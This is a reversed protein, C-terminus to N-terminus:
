AVSEATIDSPPPRADEERARHYAAELQEAVVSLSFREGVRARGSQGMQRRLEPSRYLTLIAASLAAVDDVPVVLGEIGDRVIATNGPIDSVIVPLGSAMAELLANSMGESRSPLILFGAQHHAAWIHSTPGAFIVTNGCGHAEAYTAWEETKGAGYLTLQIGPESQVARGWAQLLWDFAKYQIGQTFNGVYIACTRSAPDAIETPMEVGNPVRFIKHSPIGLEVLASFIAETMAFFRCKTSRALWWKKFPVFDAPNPTAMEPPLSAEKCFVPVSLGAGLWHGVGAIWGSMHVHIVDVGLRRRWHLWFIDAIFSANTLWISCAQWHSNRAPSTAQMPTAGSTSGCGNLRKKVFCNKIKQQFRRRAAMWPLYFGLRGIRVGDRVEWRPTGVAQWRTLVTVRHGRKVLARAQRWCQMEAGGRVEPPFQGILILIHMM